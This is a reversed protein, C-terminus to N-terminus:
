KVSAIINFEFGKLHELRQHGAAGTRQVWEIMMGNRGSIYGSGDMWGM